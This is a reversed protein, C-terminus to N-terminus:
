LSVTAQVTVVRQSYSFSREPDFGQFGASRNITFAMSGEV